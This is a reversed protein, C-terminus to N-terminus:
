RMQKVISAMAEICRIKDERTMGIKRQFIRM